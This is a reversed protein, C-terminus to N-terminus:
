NSETEETLQVFSTFSTRIIHRFSINKYKWLWFRLKNQFISCCCAYEELNGLSVKTLQLNIFVMPVGEEVDVLLYGRGTDSVEHWKESIHEAFIFRQLKIERISVQFYLEPLKIFCIDSKFIIKPELGHIVIISKLVSWQVQRGFLEKKVFKSEKDISINGYDLIHHVNIQNLKLHISRVLVPCPLVRVSVCHAQTHVLIVLPYKLELLSTFSLFIM